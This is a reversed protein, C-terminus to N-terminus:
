RIDKLDKQRDRFAIRSYFYFLVGVGVGDCPRWSILGVVPHCRCYSSGARYWYWLGRCHLILAAGLGLHHRHHKGKM